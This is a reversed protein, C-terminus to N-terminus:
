RFAKDEEFARDNERDDDKAAHTALDADRNCGDDQDAAKFIQAVDREQLDNETLTEVGFLPAHDDEAQQHHRDHYPARAAEYRVAGRGDGQLFATGNAGLM